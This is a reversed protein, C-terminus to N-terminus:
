VERNTPLTLHTYSVSDAGHVYGRPECGPLTCTIGLNAQPLIAFLNHPYVKANDDYSMGAGSSGYLKNRFSFINIPMMQDGLGKSYFNRPTVLTIQDRIDEYSGPIRPLSSGTGSNGEYVQGPVLSGRM